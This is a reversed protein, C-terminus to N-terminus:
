LLLNLYRWIMNDQTVSILLLHGWLWWKHMLQLFPLRLYTLATTERWFLNVLCFFLSQASYIAFPLQLLCLSQLLRWQFGGRDEADRIQFHALHIIQSADLLSGPVIDELVSASTLNIQFYQAFLSQIMNFFHHAHQLIITPSVNNMLYM